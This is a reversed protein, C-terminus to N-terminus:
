TLRLTSTAARWRGPIGGLQMERLRSVTRPFEHALPGETYLAEPPVEASMILKVRRDYLVDVLWTFRRAESPWARRCRRCTRCCCAHPVATALELYDNQSRPGGCLTPLRVLRRRRRPAPRPDRAARDAAAPREDHAEALREFAETMAADAQPASRRTTSSSRSAAHPAPLRHRRRRQRGRAEGEAARDGAPHARPAPREPLPRRAPLEVDHRHQRRNEFLAELLRHLIM